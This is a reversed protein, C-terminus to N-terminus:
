CRLRGYSLLAIYLVGHDAMLRGQRLNRTAIVTSAAVTCYKSTAAAEQEQSACYTYMRVERRRNRAPDTTARRNKIEDVSVEGM